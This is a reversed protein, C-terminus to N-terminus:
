RIQFVNTRKSITAGNVLKLTLEGVIEDAGIIDENLLRQSVDNREFRASQFAAQDFFFHTPYAFLFDDILPDDGLIRCELRSTLPSENAAFNVDAVVVVTAQQTSQNLQISLFPTSEITAM